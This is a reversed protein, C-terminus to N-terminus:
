MNNEHEFVEVKKRLRLYKKYWDKEKVTSIFTSFSATGNRERNYKYWSNMLKKRHRFYSREVLKYRSKM